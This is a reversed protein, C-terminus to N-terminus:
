TDANLSLILGSLLSRRSRLRHIRTGVAAGEKLNIAGNGISVVRTNEHTRERFRKVSTFILLNDQMEVPEGM